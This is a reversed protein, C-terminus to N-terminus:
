QNISEHIGKLLSNPSNVPTDFGLEWFMVGGWREKKIKSANKKIATKGMFQFGNISDKRPDPDFLEIIERYTKTEKSSRGYFPLGVVVKEKPIDTNVINQLGYDFQKQFTNLDLGELPEYVMLHIQDLNKWIESVFQVQDKSYNFAGTLKLGNTSFVEKLVKFLETANKKDEKTQPYEWDIDAGQLKNSHCFDKINMAFNWRSASDAAMASFHRSNEMAGGVGIMLNIGPYKDRIKNLYKIDTFTSSLFELEGDSKTRILKYILEDVYNLAEPDFRDISNYKLYAVTLARQANLNIALNFAIAFLLLATLSSYKIHIM